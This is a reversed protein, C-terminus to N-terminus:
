AYEDIGMLTQLKDREDQQALQGYASVARQQPYGLDSGKNSPQQIYNQLLQQKQSPSVSEVQVVASAPLRLVEQSPRESSSASLPKLKDQRNDLSYLNFNNDAIRM